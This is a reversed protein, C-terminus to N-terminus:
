VELWIENNLCGGMPAVEIKFKLEQLAQRAEEVRRPNVFLGRPLRGLRAQYKILVKNLNTKLTGSFRYCYYTCM